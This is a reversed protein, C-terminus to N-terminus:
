ILTLAAQSRIQEGSLVYYVETARPHVHPLLVACAQMEGRNVSVGPAPLTALLPNAAATMQFVTAAANNAAPQLCMLDQDITLQSPTDCDPALLGSLTSWTTPLAASCCRTETDCLTNM